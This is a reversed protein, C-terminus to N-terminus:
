ESESDEAAFERCSAVFSSAITTCRSSRIIGIERFFEAQEIPIVQIREFAERYAKAEPVIAIGHGEEVMALLTPIDDLEVWDRVAIREDELYRAVKRGGFSSRHYRLFPLSSLAERVDSITESTPAALVFREEVLSDWLLNQPIGFGPRIIIALDLEAADLQNLLELSTGPIVQLYVGPFQAKFVPLARLLLTTHVSAIAGIRLRGSQAASDLPDALSEALAILEGAKALVSHGVDNLDASRGTRVFLPNGLKEELRRMQASVASQTLGIREAAAAFTGYHAVAVFTKLETIM